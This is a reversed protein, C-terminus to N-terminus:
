EKDYAQIDIKVIGKKLKRNEKLGLFFDYYSIEDGRKSVEAIDFKYYLDTGYKDKQKKRCEVSDGLLFPEKEIIKQYVFNINDKENISFCVDIDNPELKHTVFSGDLYLYECGSQKLIQLVKELGDLLDKRRPSFNFQAYFEDWTMMHCGEPLCGYPEIFDMSM